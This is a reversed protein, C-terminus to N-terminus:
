GATSRDNGRSTSPRPIRLLRSSLRVQVSADNRVPPKNLLSFRIAVPVSQKNAEPVQFVLFGEWGSVASGHLPEVRTTRVHLPLKGLISLTVSSAPSQRQPQTQATQNRPKVALVKVSDALVRRLPEAAVPIASERRAECVIYLEM